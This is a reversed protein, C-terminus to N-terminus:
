QIAWVRAVGDEGTTVIPAGSPHVALGTAWDTHGHSEFLLSLSAADFVRLYGDQSSVAFWSGDPAYRIATPEGFFETIIGTATMDPLAYVRVSSDSAGVLLTRGDPSIALAKPAASNDLAARGAPRVRRQGIEFLTLTGAESGVVVRRNVTDVALATFPVGDDRTRDPGAGTALNTFQISADAGASIVVNDDGTGMLGRVAGEHVLWSSIVAGDDPGIVTIFGDTWGAVLRGDPLYLLASAAGREPNAVARVEFTDAEYITVNGDTTAVTLADGGPSYAASVAAGPLWLRSVPQDNDAHWISIEQASATAIVDGAVAVARLPNRPQNTRELMIVDTLMARVRLIEDGGVTVLRGDPTVALDWVPVSFNEVETVPGSTTADWTTILGSEDAFVLLGEPSFALARLSGNRGVIGAIENGTASEWIRVMGDRGIGALMAGDASFALRDIVAPLGDIVTRVSLDAADWLLVRLDDGASALTTGDPSFAVANVAAAHERSELLLADSEIDWVRVSFDWGGAAVRAGDPSVDVTVAYFEGGSLKDTADPVGTETVVVGVSTAVALLKGDPAFALDNAEGHGLVAVQALTAANATTIPAPQAAAPISLIGIFLVVFLTTFRRM